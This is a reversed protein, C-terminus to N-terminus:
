RLEAARAGARRVWGPPLGGVVITGLLEALRYGPDAENAKDLWGNATAGDGGWWALLALITLAPAHAGDTAHAVVERLVQAAAELGERTPELESGPEFLMGFADGIRRSVLDPPGGLAARAADLSATAAVVVADRVLVDQLASTIRGIDRSRVPAGARVADVACAWADLGRMRWAVSGSGPVGGDAALAEARRLEWRGAVRRVNHREKAGVLPVAVLDGRHDAVRAGAFVMQASVQTSDLDELPWGWLPCCSADECDFCYYRDEDVVWVATPGVREELIAVLTQAADRVDSRWRGRPRAGDAYVAVVTREAGDRWLHSALGVSTLEGTGPHALDALDVRAVLGLRGRVGRISVVVVSERPRFGLRYPLYALLERTEGVRIITTAMATM